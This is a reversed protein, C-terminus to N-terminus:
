ESLIALFVNDDCDDAVAFNYHEEVGGKGDYVEVYIPADQKFNRLIEILEAVTCPNSKDNIVM